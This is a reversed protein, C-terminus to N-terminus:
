KSEKGERVRGFHLINLTDDNTITGDTLSTQENRVRGVSEGALIDGGHEIVVRGVDHDITLWDIEAEPISGTLLIIVAQARQRVGLGIDKQNAEGNDGRVREVVDLGFPPWLDLVVGRTNREDQDTGLAIQSVVRGHGSLQGSLIEANDRDLFGLLSGSVDAGDSIHLTGGQSLFAELGHEVLRDSGGHVVFLGFLGAAAANDELRDVGRRGRKAQRQVKYEM